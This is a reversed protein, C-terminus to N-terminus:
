ATPTTNFFDSGYGHDDLNERRSAKTKCKVNIGTVWKSNIKTVNTLDTDLNLKKCISTWNNSCWKTFLSGKSWQITKAGFSM